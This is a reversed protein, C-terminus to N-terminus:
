CKIVLVESSNDPYLVVTKIISKYFTKYVITRATKGTSFIEKNM